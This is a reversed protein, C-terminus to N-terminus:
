RQKIRRVSLFILSGLGTLLLTSPEPIPLSQNNLTFGSMQGLGGGFLFPTSLDTSNGLLVNATDSFGYLGNFNVNQFQDIPASNIFTQLTNGGYAAEWGIVLLEPASGAAYGPISVSGDANINGFAGIIGLSGGIIEAYNGTFIWGSNNIWPVNSGPTGSPASFLAFIYSGAPQSITGSQFTPFSNTSITTSSTNSFFARGQGYAYFHAGLLIAWTIYFKAKM